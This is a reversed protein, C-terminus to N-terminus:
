NQRLNTQSTHPRKGRRNWGTRNKSQGGGRGQYWNQSQQRVAPRSDWNKSASQFHGGRSSRVLNRGIKSAKDISTCTVPLEDGFLFKTVPIDKSMLSRYKKDMHPAYVIKARRDISMDFWLKTQFHVASIAEKTLDAGLEKAKQPNKQLDICKATMQSLLFITKTLIKQYHQIDESKDAHKVYEWVEPNVRPVHIDVDSPRLVADLKQQFDGSRKKEDEKSDLKKTVKNKIKKVINSLREGVAEGVHEDADYEQEIEDLADSEDPGGAPENNALLLDIDEEIDDDGLSMAKERAAIPVQPEDTGGTTARIKKTGGNQKQSARPQAAYTESEDSSSEEESHVTRKRKRQESFLKLLEGNQKLMLRLDEIPLAISTQAGPVLAEGGHPKSAGSTSPITGDFEPKERDKKPDFRGGSATSECESDSDEIDSRDNAEM